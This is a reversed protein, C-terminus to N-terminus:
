YRGAELALMVCTSAEMPQALRLSCTHRMLAQYHSRFFRFFFILSPSQFRPPLAAAKVKDPLHFTFAPVAANTDWLQILSTLSSITGKRSMRM